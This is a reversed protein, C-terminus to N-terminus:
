PANAILVDHDFRVEEGRASIILHFKVLSNRTLTAHSTNFELETVNEAMLSREANFFNPTDVSERELAYNSYRWIQNAEICYAVPTDYVYFRNAPSDSPFLTQEAIKLQVMNETTSATFDVDELIIATKNEGGVPAALSFIDVASTPYIVVRQDKRITGDPIITLENEPTLPLDSYIGSARVPVWEICTYKTSNLPDPQSLVVSNPVALRLERVIREAVFRGEQLILERAATDVYIQASQTIIGALSLGVISLLVMAMIMEILTFGLAKM